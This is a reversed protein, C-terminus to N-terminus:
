DISMNGYQSVNTHFKQWMGYSSSDYPGYFWILRTKTDNDINFKYYRIIKSKKRRRAFGSKNKLEFTKGAPGFPLQENSRNEDDVFTPQDNSNNEHLDGNDVAEALDDNNDDNDFSSPKKKKNPDKLSIDFYAAFQALTIDNLVSNM